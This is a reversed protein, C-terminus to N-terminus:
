LFMIIIVYTFIVFSLSDIRDLIGGHGPMINSFDKIDNERKIKSYVLDGIQGVISLIITILIIKFNIPEVLYHYIITAISVGGIVGAIAGEWSKKPSIKPSMKHKGILCGIAYAFTDTFITVSILYLLIFVDVDRIIILLNFFLGILYIGSLLYFADEIKYKDKKYFVTPILLLVLPILVRDYSLSYVLSTEGYNGLVLYLLSILGLAKVINPIEQHSKKLKLIEVYGLISLIGCGIAFPYGGLYILPIVIILAVIASIIRVKM